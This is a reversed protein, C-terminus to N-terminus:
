AAARTRRPAVIQVFRSLNYALNSLAIVVQARRGGITRVVGGGNMSTHVFGFVHEIRVRIRSKERNADKSWESLPANVYAREHIRSEVNADALMEECSASRYASDAYVVPNGAELDVLDVFVQSDHVSADTVTYERILKHEADVNVHNKYGFHTQGRKKTWRADVDKQAIKNAQGDWEPPVEDLAIQANEDRSNRQRPAEVITADVIQGGKASLGKARLHSEFQMFLDREINASKIRERFKWITKADPSGDEVHLGLFRQFSTRDRIQYETQDDSLNYLRQLVLIKFMLLADIPKRGTDIKGERDYVDALTPRFVDWQIHANLRVLPDGLKVLAARQAATDFFGPNKIKFANRKRQKQGV